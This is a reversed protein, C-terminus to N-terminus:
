PALKKITASDVRGSARLGEKRQFERIARRTEPGLKDDIRGKYYGRQALARQVAATTLTPEPISTASHPPTALPTPAPTASPTPIPTASPALTASPTPTSAPSPTLTASPTPTPTASPTLTASPTPTPTASPTPTAPNCALLLAGISFLLPGFLLKNMKHHTLDYQHM